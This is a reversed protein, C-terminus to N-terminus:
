VEDVKVSRLDREKRITGQDLTFNIVALETGSSLRVDEQYDCSEGREHCWTDIFATTISYCLSMIVM